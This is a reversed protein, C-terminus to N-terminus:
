LINYSSTMNLSADECLGAITLAAVLLMARCFGGGVQGLLLDAYTTLKDFEVSNEVPVRRDLGTGTAGGGGSSGAGASGGIPPSAQPPRPSQAAAGAPFGHTSLAPAAMSSTHQQQIGGAADDAQSSPLDMTM